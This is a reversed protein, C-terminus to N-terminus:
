QFFAIEIVDGDDAATELAIGIKTTTTADTIKGSAATFVLDGAAIAKAATAYVTGGGNILAIPTTEGSDAGRTTFGVIPLDTAAGAKVVDGDSEVKVCLYETLAEGANFSRLSNQVTTSSSM